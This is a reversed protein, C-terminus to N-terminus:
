MTPKLISDIITAAHLLAASGVNGIPDDLASAPLWQVLEPLLVGQPRDVPVVLAMAGAPLTGPIFPCTILRGTRARVHAENSLVAVYLEADTDRRPAVDGSVIM